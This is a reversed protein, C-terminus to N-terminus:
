PGVPKKIVFSNGGYCNTKDVLVKIGHTQKVQDATSRTNDSVTRKEKKPHKGTQAFPEVVDRHMRMTEAELEELDM